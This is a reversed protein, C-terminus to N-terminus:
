KGPPHPAFGGNDWMRNAPAVDCRIVGKACLSSHWEYKLFIREAAVAEPQFSVVRVVDRTSQGFGTGADEAASRGPSPKAREASPGATPSQSIDAPPPPVEPYVAVAIVGMASEDGFAAAYSDAVNTFYFRHVTNLDTRWGQFTGEGYPELVYMRETNRLESRAGSIINRGDVAVVVGIRRGLRNRVVISYSDGKVAEAYARRDRARGEVPFIQLPGRADSRIEVVAVDGIGGASVSGALGLLM